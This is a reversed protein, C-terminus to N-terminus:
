TQGEAFLYTENNSSFILHLTVQFTSLIALKNLYVDTKGEIFHLDKLGLTFAPKYKYNNISQKWVTENGQSRTTYTEVCCLILQGMKLQVFMKQTSLMSSDHGLVTWLFFSIQQTIVILLFLHIFDSIETTDSGKM